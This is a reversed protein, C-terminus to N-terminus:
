IPMWLGYTKGGRVNVINLSMLQLLSDSGGPVIMDMISLLKVERESRMWHM